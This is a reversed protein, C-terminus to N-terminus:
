YITEEDYVTPCNGATIRIKLPYNVSFSFNFTYVEGPKITVNALTYSPDNVYYCKEPNLPEDYVPNSYFLYGKFDKLNVNGTNELTFYGSGNVIRANFVNLGAGLCINQSQNETARIQERVFSTAWTAMVGAITMTVAILLVAAILPSIGKKSFM